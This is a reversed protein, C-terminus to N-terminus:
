EERQRGERVKFIVVGDNRDNKFIAVPPTGIKEHIWEERKRNRRNIEIALYDFHTWSGETLM